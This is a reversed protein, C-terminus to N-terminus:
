KKTITKWLDVYEEKLLEEPRRKTDIHCENLIASAREKSHLYSTLNNLITKRRMLFMAKLFQYFLKKDEFQSISRVKFVISNVHPTPYFCEKSVLCVKEVQYFLSLFISLPGYDKSKPYALLREKVEEQVMFVFNRFNMELLVKEIIPTTIYYPLNGIVVCKDSTPLIAKLFDMQHIKIWPYEQFVQTLHDVMQQDIEYLHLSQQYKNLQETLAGLGPGIEIITEDKKIDLAKVITMVITEDILFNQGFRKVPHLNHNNIKNLVYERSAIMIKVWREYIM